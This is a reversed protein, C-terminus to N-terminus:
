KISFDIKSDTKANIPFSLIKSKRDYYFQINKQDAYETFESGNCSIENPKEFIGHIIILYVRQNLKGEFVGKSESINLNLVPNGKEQFSKQTFTTLSFNGKQYALSKGDDEYLTYTTESNGSPYIHVTLTDLPREDSFNMLPAMPIISGSKVFLPIKDIPADVSITKGGDVIEETWFNVWKGKPLYIDKKTQGAKVVPSVLFANGWMYSSSENVLNKDETDLWFLPRALPIGTRYNQYALTYIYPLLEYRLNIFNRCINEAEEGFMWPETPSGNVSVGSGHARAIPCFTGFQMWRIYLEPTTPNRAYGGIDSNQYGFGSMGMNLMMPMQVELGGFTRSVDGSWPLIGYRQSGSFGSRTLNVVREDPRLEKFGDFITKSWLLNYINHIKEASGLHHLMGAPHREPEGLDTWIGAVSKGFAAPHKKWWWTQAAPNTLDLLSSKCGGCSWWKDLIFTKGSSDKALFGNSEAEPFNLSPQIIYPETILITKLGVSLFDSVMKEHNPWLKEDWSIDGMNEFWALDLVIADAPIKKSRITAAISRAEEENRYRNKSQIYGFVWRPPLPQRGTLWTYKELQEPITEAPILYLSLEGGDASYSFLTSDTAGLDFFGRTYNDIYLAYGTSTTLIPANLNMTPLPTSYGGIQTNYSEFKMGRKDLGTGREGTGYFHVNANLSFRFNRKSGDASLGGSVPENLLLNGDSGSFTFRLPYKRCGITIKGSEIFLDSGTERISVSVMEDPNQIVVLSSDIVSDSSPLYDIRVIDSAYFIFRVSSSNSKVTISNKNQSHGTYNGLYTQASSNQVIFSLILVLIIKM